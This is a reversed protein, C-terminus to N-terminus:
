ADTPPRQPHAAHWAYLGGGTFIGGLLLYSAWVEGPWFYVDMLRILGVSGWVLVAVALTAILIGFVVARAGIVIPRVARDNVLAVALEISDAAKTAWEAPVLPARPATDTATGAPAPSPPAADPAPSSGFDENM